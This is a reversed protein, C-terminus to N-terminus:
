RFLCARSPVSRENAEIVKRVAEDVQQKERLFQEYAQQRATALSPFPHFVFSFHLLTFSFLMIHTLMGVEREHKHTEVADMQEQLIKLRREEPDPERSRLIAQFREAEEEAERDKKQLLYSL